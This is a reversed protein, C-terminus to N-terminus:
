ATQTDFNSVQVYMFAKNGNALSPGFKYDMKRGDSHTIGGQWDSPASKGEMQSLLKYADGYGIPTIPINPLGPLGDSGFKGGYETTLNRTWRTKLTLILVKHKPRGIPEQFPRISRPKPIAM